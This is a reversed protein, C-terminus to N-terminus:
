SGIEKSIMKYLQQWSQSMSETGPLPVFAAVPAAAKRNKVAKVAKAQKRTEQVM